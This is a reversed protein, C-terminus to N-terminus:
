VGDKLGNITISLVVIIIFIIAGIWKAISADRENWKGKDKLIQNQRQIEEYSRRNSYPNRASYPTKPKYPKLPKGFKNLLPTNGNRDPAKM